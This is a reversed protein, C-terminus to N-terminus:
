DARGPESLGRGEFRELAIRREPAIAVTAQKGYDYCVIVTRGEAVVEDGGGAAARVLVWQLEFSKTGIRVCRTCIAARDDLFLPRRYDVESRAMILGHQSHWDSDATGLVADYYRLRAHEAYALFHAHHVHGMADVDQFRIQIEVRHRYENMGAPIGKSM